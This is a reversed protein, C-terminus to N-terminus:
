TCPSSRGPRPPWRRPRRTGTRRGAGLLRRPLHRPSPAQGLQEVLALTDDDAWHVDELRLVCGAFRGRALRLLRLLGEALVVVPDADLGLSAGTDPEAWSPLLRGLATRYGRLSPHAAHAPDDLVLVAGAVARFTGGGQVARGSLVTLGGDAARAAVEDLLRTKGIGAEGAVLLVAGRGAALGRDVLGRAMALEAARGVLVPSRTVPNSAPGTAVASLVGGGCGSAM